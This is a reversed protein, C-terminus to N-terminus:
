PTPTPFPFPFPPFTPYPTAMLATCGAPSCTVVIRAPEFGNNHLEADGIEGRSWREATHRRLRVVTDSTGTLDTAAVFLTYLPPDIKLFNAAAVAKVTQLREAYGPRGTIPSAYQIMLAEERDGADFTFWYVNADIGAARLVGSLAAPADARPLISPASTAQIRVVARPTQTATLTLTAAPGPTPSNTPRATPTITMDRTRSVVIPTPSPLALPTGTPRASRAPGCAALMLCSFTILVKVALRM